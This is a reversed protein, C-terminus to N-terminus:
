SQSGMLHTTSKGQGKGLPCTPHLHRGQLSSGHVQGSCQPLPTPLLPPSLDISIQGKRGEKRVELM